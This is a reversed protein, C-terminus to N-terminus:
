SDNMILVGSKSEKQGYIMVSAYSLYKRKHIQHYLQVLSFDRKKEFQQKGSIRNQDLSYISEEPLDFIICIPRWSQSKRVFADIGKFGTEILKREPNIRKQSSRLEIPVWQHIHLYPHRYLTMQHRHTVFFIQYNSKQLQNVVEVVSRSVVEFGMKDKLKTLIPQKNNLNLKNLVIVVPPKWSYPRLLQYENVMIPGKSALCVSQIFLIIILIKM